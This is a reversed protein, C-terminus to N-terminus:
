ISGSEHHFRRMRVVHELTKKKEAETPRQLTKVTGRKEERDLLNVKYAIVCISMPPLKLASALNLRCSTVM